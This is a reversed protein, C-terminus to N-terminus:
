DINSTAYVLAEKLREKYIGASNNAGSLATQLFSIAESGGYRAISYAIEAKNEDQEGYNEFIETLLAWKRKGRKGSSLIMALYPILPSEQNSRAFIRIPPLAKGGFSKLLSWFHHFLIHDVPIVELIDIIIPSVEVIDWLECYTALKILKQSEIEPNVLYSRFIMQILEIVKPDPEVDLHKLEAFLGEFFYDYEDKDVALNLNTYGSGGQRFKRFIGLDLVVNGRIKKRKQREVKINELPFNFYPTVRCNNMLTQLSALIGRIQPHSVELWIPRLSAGKLMQNGVEALNFELDLAEMDKELLDRHSIDLITDIEKPIGDDCTYNKIMQIYVPICQSTNLGAGQMFHDVVYQIDLPFHYGDLDRILNNISNGIEKEANSFEQSGQLTASLLAIVTLLELSASYASLMLDREYFYMSEKIELCASVFGDVTTIEKIEEILDEYSLEM